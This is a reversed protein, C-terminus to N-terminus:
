TDDKPPSELASDDDGSRLALGNCMHLHVLLANISSHFQCNLVHARQLAVELADERGGEDIHASSCEIDREQEEFGCM